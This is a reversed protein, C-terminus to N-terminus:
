RDELIFDSIVEDRDVEGRLIAEFLPKRYLYREQTFVSSYPYILPVLYIYLYFLYCVLVIKLCKFSIRLSVDKIVGKVSSALAIIIFPLIFDNSRSSLSGYKIAQIRFIIFLVIFSNIYGKKERRLMLLLIFPMDRIIELVVIKWGILDTHKRSMYNGISTTVTELGAFLDYLFDVTDLVALVVFSVLLVIIINKLGFDIKNLFIVVPFVILIISESHFGIAILVFLYYLIFKKKILYDFAWLFLSVSIAARMIETNYIFTGLSIYYILVALFPRDTYKKFFRFFSVNVIVAQALFLTVYESSISRCVMVFIDWLIGYRSSDFDFSRINELSPYSTYSYQYEFSDGGVEFRVGMILIIILCEICYCFNKNKVYHYMDFHIYGYLLVLLLFIYVIM